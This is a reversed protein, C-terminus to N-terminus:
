TMQRVCILLWSPRQYILCISSSNPLNAVAADVYAVLEAQQPDEAPVLHPKVIKHLFSDWESIDFINRNARGSFDGWILIRFPTEPEPVVRTEEMASVLNM